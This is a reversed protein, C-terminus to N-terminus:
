VLQTEFEDVKNMRHYVGIKDGMHKEALDGDTDKIFVIVQEATEPLAKCVTEIRRKDFASLPADMVLPYPESTLMKMNEDTTNRNERALKIIGTIFAFIVSISQATSTEVDDGAYQSASVTIHYKEDIEVYLGGEYIERFIKNITEQLRNRVQKESDSYTKYLKDFVVEAYAKYLEVKQNKTDLLTLKQRESIFRDRKTALAGKEQEQRSREREANEEATKCIQIEHNIERVKKSVDEGSLKEEIQHLEVKADDIEDNQRCIAAVSREMQDAVDELKGNRSRAERKFGGVSTSISQPPLYDMLDKLKSCALSGEQLHTGCICVGQKLLYEITQVHMYPIDKGSVDQDKLLTLARYILSKSFFPSASANFDKFMAKCTLARANEASAIQKLYEEKQRQLKAGDEYEKLESMKQYRRDNAKKIEVSLEELREDIRAIKDDCERIVKTYQEIKNNSQPDYDAEYSKIVGKTGRFHKIAAQMANLGLLGNVAEAFDSSKKGSAIDKSMKEIREGDFFFYHSLEKPLIAKIEAELLSQKIYILSGDESKRAINLATNDGKVKNAYDKSYVQERIIKYETTGHNVELEVRVKEKNGPVMHNMVHRNLLIKDAFSTEGYLVWFFAQEFTTKGSGNDGLCITVNRGDEGTAFRISCDRFQRFNQLRISKILM